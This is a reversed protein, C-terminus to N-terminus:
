SLPHLSLTLGRGQFPQAHGATSLLEAGPRYRRHRRNKSARRGGGAAKQRIRDVTQRRGQRDDQPGVGKTPGFSRCETPLVPKRSPSCLQAMKVVSVCLRPPILWQIEMKRHRLPSLSKRKFFLRACIRVARFLRLASNRRGSVRRSKGRHSSTGCLEFPVFEASRGAEVAAERRSEWSELGPPESSREQLVRADGVIHRNIGASESGAWGKECLATARM